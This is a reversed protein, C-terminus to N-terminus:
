VRHILLFCHLFQYDDHHQQCEDTDVNSNCRVAVGVVVLLTGYGEIVLSMLVRKAIAGLTVFALRCLDSNVFVIGVRSALAAVLVHVARGLTVVAVLLLKSSVCHQLFAM